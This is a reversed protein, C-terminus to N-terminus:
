NLKGAKAYALAAKIRDARAQSAGMKGDKLLGLIVTMWVKFERGTKENKTTM